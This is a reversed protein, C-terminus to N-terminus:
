KANKGQVLVRFRDLVIIQFHYSKFVSELTSLNSFSIRIIIDNDHLRITKVSFAFRQVRHLLLWLNNLNDQCAFLLNGSTKVTKLRKRTSASFPMFLPSVSVIHLHLVTM